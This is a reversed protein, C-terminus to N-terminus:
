FPLLDPDILFSVSLLGIDPTETSWSWGAWVPNVGCNDPLSVLARM